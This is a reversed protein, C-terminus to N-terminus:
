RTNDVVLRLRPKRRRRSRHILMDQLDQADVLTRGDIEACDLKGAARWNRLTRETVGARSLAETM